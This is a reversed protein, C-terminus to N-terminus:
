VINFNFTFTLPVYNFCVKVKRLRHEDCALGRKAAVSAAEVKSYKRRRRKPKSGADNPSWRSIELTGQPQSAVSADPGDILNM